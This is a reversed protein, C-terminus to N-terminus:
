METSYNLIKEVHIRVDNPAVRVFSVKFRNKAKIGM